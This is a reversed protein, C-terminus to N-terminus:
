SQVAAPSRRAHGAELFMDLLADIRILIDSVAARRARTDKRRVDARAEALESCALAFDLGLVTGVTDVNVTM